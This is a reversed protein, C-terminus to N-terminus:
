AVDKRMFRRLTLLVLGMGLVLWLAMTWTEQYPVVFNIGGDRFWIDGNLWQFFPFWMGLAYLLWYGANGAASTLAVPVASFLVIAMFGRYMDGTLLGSAVALVHFIATLAAGLALKAALYGALSFPRWTAFPGFFDYYFRTSVSEHWIPGLRWLVAFVSVTVLCLLGYGGLSSLLSALAKSLQIRRGTASAYVALHTRSIKESGCAYLAMTVALLMGEMTLVQCLTQLLHDYLGKTAGAAAMDLSADSEALTDVAAQFRAYKQTLIDELKGNVGYWAIIGGGFASSDFDDFLDEAGSTQNILTGKRESEPLASLAADFDPGMRGGITDTVDVIYSVFDAAERREYQIVGVILLNLGMCMVLFIPVMPLSWLKKLEWEILSGSM